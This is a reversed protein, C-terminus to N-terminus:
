YNIGTGRSVAVVKDGRKYTTETTTILMTGMSGKREALDAVKSSATLVDGACITDFYEIDTGGNLVRKLNHKVRPGGRAGGFTADSTTPNFIPTGLYHPPAPLSRYGKSKAFDEDYYLPDTYGVSRAFMRIATKDVELTWPPSEVGIVARMEDNIISEEAM